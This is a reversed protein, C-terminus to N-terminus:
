RTLPSRSSPGHYARWAGRVLAGHALLWLWPDLLADWLNGSPLRTVVFVAALALAALGVQRCPPLAILLLALGVLVALAGSSYGWPYIFEPVVGPLLALTDLLLLWGLVVAAGALAMWQGGSRPRRRRDIHTHLLLLALGMSALSPLQFALGLWYALGWPGPLLCMVALVSAAVYRQRRMKTARGLGVRMALYALIVAWGIHRGLTIGWPVPLVPISSLQTIREVVTPSTPLTWPNLTGLVAQLESFTAIM